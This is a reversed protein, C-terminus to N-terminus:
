ALRAGKGKGGTQKAPKAAKKAPPKPNAPARNILGERIAAGEVAMTYGGSSHGRRLEASADHTAKKAPPKVVVKKAYRKDAAKSM